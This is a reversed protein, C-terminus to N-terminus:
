NGTLKVMAVCPCHYEIMEIVHAHRRDAIPTIDDHALYVRYGADHSGLTTVRHLPMGSLRRCVDIPDDIQYVRDSRDATDGVIYGSSNDIILYRLMM